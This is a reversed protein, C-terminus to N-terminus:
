LSGDNAREWEDESMVGPVLLVGTTGPIDKGNTTHDIAQHPRGHGRDLLSNAAAVRVTSSERGNLMIEALTQIAQATHVQALEKVEATVKNLSGRPRGAGRPNRGAKQEIAGSM